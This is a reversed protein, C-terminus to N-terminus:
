PKTSRELYLAALRLLHPDDYFFGLGKNCNQHIFGRIIGTAHDHDLVAQGSFPQSCLACTGQQAQWMQWAQDKFEVRAPTISQEYSRLSLWCAYRVRGKNHKLTLLPVRGCTQCVATMNATDIDALRHRHVFTLPRPRKACNKCLSNRAKLFSPYTNSTTLEASCKRCTM